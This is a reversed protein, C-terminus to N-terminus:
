PPAAIGFFASVSLVNIARSGAAAPLRSMIQSAPSGLKPTRMVSLPPAVKIIIRRISPFSSRRVIPRGPLHRQFACPLQWKRQCLGAGRRPFRNQVHRPADIWFRLTLDLALRLPLLLIVERCDGLCEDSPVDFVKSRRDVDAGCNSLLQLANKAVIFKAFDPRRRRSPPETIGEPIKDPKRQKGPCRSRSAALAVHGFNSRSRATQVIGGERMFVFVSVACLTGNAGPPPPDAETMAACAPARRRKSWPPDAGTLPKLRTFVRRSLKSGPISAQRKWSRRLVM